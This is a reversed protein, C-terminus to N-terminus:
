KKKKGKKGKKKKKSNRKKPYTKEKLDLTWKQPETANEPDEHEPTGFIHLQEGTKVFQKELMKHAADAHIKKKYIYTIGDVMTGLGISLISMTDGDGEAQYVNAFVKKRGVQIEKRNCQYSHLNLGKWKRLEPLHEDSWRCNAFQGERKHFYLVDEDPDQLFKHIQGMLADKFRESDFTGYQTYFTPM